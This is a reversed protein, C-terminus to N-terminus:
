KGGSEIEGAREVGLAVLKRISYGRTQTLLYIRDNLDQAEADSSLEFTLTVKTVGLSRKRTFAYRQELTKKM